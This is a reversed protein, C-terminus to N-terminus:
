ERLADKLRSNMSGSASYRRAADLKMRKLENRLYQQESELQALLDLAASPSKDSGDCLAAIEKRLREAINEEKM